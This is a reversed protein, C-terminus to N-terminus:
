EICYEEGINFSEYNKKSVEADGFVDGNGDVGGGGGIATMAFFYKGGSNVRLVNEKEPTIISQDKPKNLDLSILQFNPADNNTYFYFKSKTNNIIIFKSSTAEYFCM